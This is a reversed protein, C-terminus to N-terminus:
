AVGRTFPRTLAAPQGARRPALALAVITLV